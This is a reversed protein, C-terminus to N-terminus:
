RNQAVGQFHHAAALIQEPASMGFVTVDEGDFKARLVGGHDASSFVILDNIRLGVAAKVHLLRVGKELGRNTLHQKGGIFLGVVVLARHQLFDEPAFAHGLVNLRHVDFHLAPQVAQAM